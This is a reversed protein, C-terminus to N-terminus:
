ARPERRGAPARGRRGPPAPFPRVRGGRARGAGRARRSGGRLQQRKAASRSRGRRRARRGARRRGRRERGDRQDDLARDAEVALRARTTTPEADSSAIAPPSAARSPVPSARERRGDGLAAPRRPALPPREPLPEVEVEDRQREAAQDVPQGRAGAERRDDVGVGVRGERERDVHEERGASSQIPAVSSSTRRRPPRKASARRSAGAPATSRAPAGEQEGAGGPAARRDVAAQDEDAQQEGEADAEADEGGGVVLLGADVSLEGEAGVDGGRRRRAHGRARARGRPDRADRADGRGRGDVVGIGVDTGVELVGEPDFGARDARRRGQAVGVEDAAPRLRHQGPQSCAGVADEDGFLRDGVVRQLRAVQQPQPDEVVAAAAEADDGEVDDAGHLLEGRRGRSEKM